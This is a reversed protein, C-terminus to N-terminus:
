RSGDKDYCYFKVALLWLGSEPYPIYMKEKVIEGEKESEESDVILGGHTVNTCLDFDNPFYGRTVKVCVKVKSAAQLYLVIWTYIQIYEFCSSLVITKDVSM